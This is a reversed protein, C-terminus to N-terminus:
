EAAIAPPRRLRPLPAVGALGRKYVVLALVTVCCGMNIANLLALPLDDLKIWAYLVTSANAGIWILWSSLSIARAGSRDRAILVMQPVYSVVRLTNFFGYALTLFDLNDLVM